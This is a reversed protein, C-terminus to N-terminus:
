RAARRCPPSPGRREPAGTSRPREDRPGRGRHGAPRVDVTESAEDDPFNYHFTSGRLAPTGQAVLADLLGWRSLQVIGARLVAHTSLTDRGERQQDVVLVRLGRRALLLATAAGACRAGVVIADYSM